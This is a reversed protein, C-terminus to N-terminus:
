AMNLIFYHVEADVELLLFGNLQPNSEDICNPQSVSYPLRQHSIVRGLFLPHLDDMKLHGQETQFLLQEIKSLAHVILSHSMGIKRMRDM